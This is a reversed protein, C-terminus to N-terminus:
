KYIHLDFLCIAMLHKGAIYYLPIFLDTKEKLAVTSATLSYSMLKFFFPM